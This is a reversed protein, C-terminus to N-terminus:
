YKGREEDNPFGKNWISLVNVFYEYQDRSLESGNGFRNSRKAHKKAEQLFTRKRKRNKKREETGTSTGVNDGWEAKDKIMLQPEKDKIM